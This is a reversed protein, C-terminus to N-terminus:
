PVLDRLWDALDPGLLIGCLLVLSDGPHVYGLTPTPIQISMTAICTFAALLATTVMAKLDNSQKM